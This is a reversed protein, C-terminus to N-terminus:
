RADGDVDVTGNGVATVKVDVWRKTGVGQQSASTAGFGVATVTVGAKLFKDKECGHIPPLIPVQKLRDDEPLICYAWDKPGGAQGSTVCKTATVSFAFPSKEGFSIKAGNRPSCHAATTVVRPHILTGSCNGLWVTSPWGCVPVTMGGVIGDTGGSALPESSETQGVAARPVLLAVASWLCVEVWRMSRRKSM